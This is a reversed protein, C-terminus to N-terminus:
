SVYSSGSIIEVIKGEEMKIIRDAIDYYRDDHSVAVITKGRAKFQPLMEQYFKKRFVPDQDAAWEDFIYVPKDELLTVLLALRKKQGTSLDLTQFEDDIFRTKKDIEMEKLLQTVREPAVAGLGYLRKFLHYDSFIVSFLQRYADINADNLEMGDVRLTGGLPRYLGTLLKMFTSKGSGNGGVIFLLEGANITLDIPGVRFSEIDARDTYHFFVGEFEIKQFDTMAPLAASAQDIGQDLQQELTAINECAANSTEIVPISGMLVSSPGVLFLVATASKIVVESYTPSILPVIFVITALLLYFTIQSFIYTTALHAQTTIKIDAASEAIARYHEFLDASRNRNMRVEKFGNLLDTLSNFLHNDQTMSQHLGIGLQKRQKFQLSIAVVIFLASLIFATMSLWAIYLFTFFILVISQASIVLAPASQSIAITEKSVCAYIDARGIKELTELRNKRVKDAIRVRVKELIKEIESSTTLMIHKQTLMYIALIIIFMALHQVSHVENSAHAAATNIVALIGANSAGAISATIVLNRLSISSEKQILELLKM